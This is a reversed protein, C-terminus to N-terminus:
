DEASSGCEKVKEWDTKFHPGRDGEDKYLSLDKLEPKVEYLADRIVVEANEPILVVENKKAGVISQGRFPWFMFERDNAFEAEGYADCNRVHLDTVFEMFRIEDFTNEELRRGCTLCYLADPNTAANSECCKNSKPRTYSLEDEYKAYLDLALQIVADRATEFYVNSIDETSFILWSTMSNEVYGCSMMILSYRGQSVKKSRAM